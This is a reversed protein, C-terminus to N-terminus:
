RYIWYINFTTIDVQVHSVSNTDNSTTLPLPLPTGLARDISHVVEFGEPNLVLLCTLYVWVKEILKLFDIYETFIRPADQRILELTIEQRKDTSMKSSVWLSHLISQLQFWFM